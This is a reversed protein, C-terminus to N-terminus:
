EQNLLFKKIQEWYTNKGIILSLEGTLGYRDVIKKNSKLRGKILYFIGEETTTSTEPIETIEGDLTTAVAKRDLKFHVLMGTKIHTMENAPIRATFPIEDDKFPPYIEALLTGKPLFTQEKVADNLHLIGDKKARVTGLDIQGNINELLVKKKKESEDLELIKQKTKALIEEKSQALRERQSNIEDEPTVPKVLTEQEMQLQEIEKKLQSIQEDIVTLTTTQIQEKKNELGNKLEMQWVQYKAKIAESVNRITKQDKWAVRVKEWESQENKRISIEQSLQDMNKQYTEQEKQNAALMQKSLSESAEKEAFFSKLQNSYGFVDEVKFLNREEALSDLFLQAVEKQKVFNEIETELQTKENALEKTNFIVLSEGSKVTLNEQLRNEKVEAEIPVQIKETSLPTIQGQARVVIEHKAFALFLGAFLFFIMIPYLIWRYFTQHQQRYVNSHELWDKNKMVEGVMTLDGM